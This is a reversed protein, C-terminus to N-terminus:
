KKECDRIKILKDALKIITEQKKDISKQMVLSKIFTGITFGFLCGAMFYPFCIIFEM